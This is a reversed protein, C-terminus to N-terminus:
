RRMLRSGRPSGGGPNPLWPCTRRGPSGGSGPAGHREVGFCIDPAGMARRPLGFKVLCSTALDNPPVLLLTIPLDQLQRERHVGEVGDVVYSVLLHCEAELVGVRPGADTHGVFALEPLQLFGLKHDVRM